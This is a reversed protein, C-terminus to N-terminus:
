SLNIGKSWYEQEIVGLKHNGLHLIASSDLSPYRITQGSLIFEALQCDWVQKPLVYGQRRSWHLDFKLNFGVCLSDAYEHGRSFDDFDCEINDNKSNWYGICVAKNRPDFASGNSHTTVEWDM